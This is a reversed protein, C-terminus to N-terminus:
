IKKGNEIKNEYACGGNKKSTDIANLHRIRENEEKKLNNPM